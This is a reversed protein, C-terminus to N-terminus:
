KLDGIHELLHRRSKFKSAKIMTRIKRYSEKNIKNTRLLGRTVGRLKRTLLVYKTKKNPVKQEVKGVGRRYKRKEITKRGSVERIQIAGSKQLDLMDQRTIAEKIENIASPVFIVRDKGVGLVKAALTKKNRLQM